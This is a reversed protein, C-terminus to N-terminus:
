TVNKRTGGSGGRSRRRGPRDELKERNVGRLSTKRQIFSPLCVLRDKVPTKLVKKLIWSEKMGSGVEEFRGKYEPTRDDQSGWLDTSM